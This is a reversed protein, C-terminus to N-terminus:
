NLEIMSHIAVHMGYFVENQHFSWYKVMIEIIMIVCSGKICWFRKMPIKNNQKKQTYAEIWYLIEHYQLVMQSSFITQVFLIDWYLMFDCTYFNYQIM